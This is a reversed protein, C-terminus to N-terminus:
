HKELWRLEEETWTPLGKAKAEASLAEMRAYAQEKLRLAEGARKQADAAAIDAATRYRREQALQAAIADAVAASVMQSKEFDCQKAAGATALAVQEAAYAHVRGTTLDGLVPISSLFPIRHAGPIGEEYVYLGILLVGPWGIYRLLWSVAAAAM